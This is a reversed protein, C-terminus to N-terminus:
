RELGAPHIPKESGSAVLGSLIGSQAVRRGHGHPWVRSVTPVAQAYYKARTFHRISVQFVLM